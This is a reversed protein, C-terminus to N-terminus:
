YSLERVDPGRLLELTYTTEALSLWLSTFAVGADDYSELLYGNLSLIRDGNRLGLEYLLDDPEARRVEFGGTALASIVADDCAWLPAPEPVLGAM